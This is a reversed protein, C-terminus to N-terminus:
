AGEKMEAVIRGLEKLMLAPDRRAARVLSAELEDFVSRLAEEAQAAVPEIDGSALRTRVADIRAALAPDRAALGRITRIAHLVTSHDRAGFMMGVEGSGHMSLEHALAMAVQRPRAYRRARKAGTLDAVAVGFVEAVARQVSRITAVTTM